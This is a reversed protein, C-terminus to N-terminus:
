AGLKESTDGRLDGCLYAARRGRERVLRATEELDSKRRANLLVDAGADALAIAIGRGIGQGSGTVVAACNSLKFRELINQTM